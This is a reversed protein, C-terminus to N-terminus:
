VIHMGFAQGYEKFLTIHFIFDKKVSMNLLRSTSYSFIDYSPILSNEIKM